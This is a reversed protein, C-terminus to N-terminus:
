QHIIISSNNVTLTTDSDADIGIPYSVENLRIIIGEDDGHNLTATGKGSAIQVESRTDSFSYSIDVNDTGAAPATAFSVTTGAVTVATDVGGVTATVSGALPTEAITFDTTTGDGDFEETASNTFGLSTSTISQGSTSINVASPVTAISGVTSAIFAVSGKAVEVSTSAGIHFGGFGSVENLGVKVGRDQPDTASGGIWVTGEGSVIVGSRDATGELAVTITGVNVASATSIWANGTLEIDYTAAATDGPLGFPYSLTGLNIPIRTVEDDTINNYVLTAKGFGSSFELQTSSAPIANSETYIAM